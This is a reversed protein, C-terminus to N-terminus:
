RHASTGAPPPPPPFMRGQSTQPGDSRLSLYLSRGSTCGYIFQLPIRLPETYLIWGGADEAAVM